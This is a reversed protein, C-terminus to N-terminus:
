DSVPVFYEDVLRIYELYRDAYTMPYRLDLATQRFKLDRLLRQKVTLGPNNKNLWGIPNMSRAQHEFIEIGMEERNAFVPSGPMLSFIGTYTLGVITDDILYKQYRRLMNLTLEFDEETETPYCTFLLFTNKIKYKQCMEMHYDLDDNTFAKNMDARLRDSGTEVGIGVSDCGAAAMMAYMSEPHSKKNRVIFLGNYSFNELGPYQKIKEVMSANFDKFSKMSGNILSDVINYHVAGVETYHKVIEDALAQGSRFRFKGWFENVDCFSCNRVCGRSSSISYVPASKHEMTRYLDTKIHKYSPLLYSQDLNNLQPVWTEFKDSAKNLGLMDRKGQLFDLILEDGEGLCYYDIGYDFLQSGNTIGTISKHMVGPGGVLITLEPVKAKLKPLIMKALPMQMYSFLSVIATSADTQAIERIMTDVVTDFKALIDDAFTGSKLSAYVENYEQGSLNSLLLYNLSYCEHPLNLKDCAGSLFALSAPPKDANVMDIALCVVTNTM